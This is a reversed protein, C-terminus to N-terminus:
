RDPLVHLPEVLGLLQLTRHLSRGPATLVYTRPEDTLRILGRDRLRSVQAIPYMGAGQRAITNLIAAQHVTLCLAFKEGAATM